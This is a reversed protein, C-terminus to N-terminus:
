PLRPKWGPHDFHFWLGAAAGVLVLAAFAVKLKTPFPRATTKM